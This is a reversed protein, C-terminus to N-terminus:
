SDRKRLNKLSSGLASSHLITENNQFFVFNLKVKSILDKQFCQSRPNKLLYSTHDELYDEKFHKFSLCEFLSSAYPFGGEKLSNSQGAFSFYSVKEVSVSGFRKLPFSDFEDFLQSCNQLISSNTLM